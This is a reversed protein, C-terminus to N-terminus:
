KEQKADKKPDTTPTPPLNPNQSRLRQSPTDLTPIIGSPDRAHTAHRILTLKKTLVKECGNSTAEVEM